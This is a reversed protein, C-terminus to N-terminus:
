FHGAVNKGIPLSSYGYLNCVDAAIGRHDCVIFMMM